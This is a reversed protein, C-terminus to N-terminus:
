EAVYRWAGNVKRWITFFSSGPATPANKARIVGFTIGLDNSSAVIATDASWVISSPANLPEGGAVVRAIAEAGRVFHGDTPLGANLSEATGRQAFAAGVGIQNALASFEAEAARLENVLRPNQAPERAPQVLRPPLLPPLPASDIAVADMPRRRWAAARWGDGTRLWFTLYKFAARSGDARASILFGVTFAHAGDAAVGVQVPVWHAHATSDVTAALAQVIPRRGVLREGRPAPMLAGDTLM